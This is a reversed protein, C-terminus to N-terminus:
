STCRATACVVRLMGDSRLWLLPGPASSTALLLTRHFCVRLVHETSWYSYDIRLSHEAEEFDDARVVDAINPEKQTLDSSCSSSVDATQELM